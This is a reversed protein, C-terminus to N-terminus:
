LLAGSGSPNGSVWEVAEEHDTFVRGFGGFSRAVVEGFRDPEVYPESGLVALAIGRGCERQLEAAAVGMDYRDMTSPPQGSLGRIDVLVSKRGESRAFKFASEIARMLADREYRGNCCVLAYEPSLESQTEIVM